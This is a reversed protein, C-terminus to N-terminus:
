VGCVLSGAIAKQFHSVYSTATIECDYSGYPNGEDYGSAAYRVSSIESITNTNEDLGALPYVINVLQLPFFFKDPISVQKKEFIRKPKAGYSLLINAYRAGTKVDNIWPANIRIEVPRSPTYKRISIPDSVAMTTKQTSFFTYRYVPGLSRISWGDDFDKTAPAPQRTFPSKTASYRPATATSPTTNDNDHYWRVTNDEDEGTKFLILWHLANSEVSAVNYQLDIKYIPTPSEPIDAYPITFRAVVKHSPSNNGDDKCILGQVGTLNYSDEVSSRGTGVKSLLLAINFLRTAGPIFQVGVDKRALSTYNVTSEGPAVSTIEDTNITLFVKNFFEGAQMRKHGSWGGDYYSTTAANDNTRDPLGTIPHLSWPRITIGSHQKFPTRLNVKKNPDYYLVTGSAAAFNELVNSATSYPQDVTPIIVKTSGIISSTDFGGRDKLPLANEEPLIDTGEFAKLALHDIRFNPDSLISQSGTISEKSASQIFNLLTYNSIIGMGSGSFTYKIQNGIPYEDLVDDIIGYALNRYTGSPKRGQIVVVNGVDITDKVVRDKTDDIRFSFGGFSGISLDISIDTLAFPPNSDYSDYTYIDDMEDPSKIIIKYKVPDNYLESTTLITAL